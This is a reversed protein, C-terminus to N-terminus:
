NLKLMDHGESLDVGELEYDHDRDMAGRRNDM